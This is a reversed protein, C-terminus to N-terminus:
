NKFSSFSFRNANWSQTVSESINLIAPDLGSGVREDTSSASSNTRTFASFNSLDCLSNDVNEVSLRNRSRRRTVAPDDARLPQDFFDVLVASVSDLQEPQASALQGMEVMSYPLIHSLTGVSSQIDRGKFLFLFRKLIQIM